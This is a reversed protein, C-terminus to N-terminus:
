TLPSARTLRKLTIVEREMGSLTDFLQSRRDLAKLEPLIFIRELFDELKDLPTALKQHIAEGWNLDKFAPQGLQPETYTGMPRSQTDWDFCDRWIPPAVEWRPGFSSDFVFNWKEAISRM